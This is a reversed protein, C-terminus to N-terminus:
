AGDGRKQKLDPYATRATLRIRAEQVAIQGLKLERVTTDLASAVQDGVTVLHLEGPGLRASRDAAKLEAPAFTADLRLLRGNDLQASARALLPGYDTDLRLRADEVVIRPQRADSRPPRKRLSAILPDLEGLSLRGDTWRGKIVPRVLRVSTVTAGFPKGAWWGTLGYRVEAVQAILDPKTAPGIRLTGTFGGPGFTSFTVESEVGQSRLWGTLAERAIVRRGAYLLSMVLLVVLATLM